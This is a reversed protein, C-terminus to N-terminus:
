AATSPKGAQMASKFFWGKLLGGLRNEILEYTVWSSLLVPALSLLLFGLQAYAGLVDVMGLKYMLAKIAAMVITQMLYLSYSITGLWQVFSTRLITCFIGNGLFVGLFGLYLAVMAATFTLFALFPSDPSPKPDLANWFNLTDYSLSFLLMAGFLWLGSPLSLRRFLKPVPALAVLLGVAFSLARTHFFVLVCAVSVAILLADREICVRALCHKLFFLAYFIFEYGISWAAPHIISGPFLPRLAFLCIFFDRLDYSVSKHSYPLAVFIIGTTLWLMPYIRIFRGTMFRVGGGSRKFSQYIVYGSIAFFAEVGYRFSLFFAQLVEGIEGGLTPLGSHAVHFIFLLLALMGRLGHIETNKGAM